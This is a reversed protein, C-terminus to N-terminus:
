LYYRKTLKWVKKNNALDFQILGYSKSWYLKNVFLSDKVYNLYNPNSNDPELILVDNFKRNNTEITTLHISDLWTLRKANFPAFQAFKRNLNITLVSNNEKGATVAMLFSQVTDSNEPHAINGELYQCKVELIECNNVYSSTIDSIYITDLEHNSSELVLVEGKKYTVWELEQQTLDTQCSSILIAIPIIFQANKM